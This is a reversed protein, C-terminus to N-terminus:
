RLPLAQPCELLRLTRSGPAHNGNRVLTSGDRLSADVSPQKGGHAGRICDGVHINAPYASGGRFIHHAGSANVEVCPKATPPVTEAISDRWRIQLRIM